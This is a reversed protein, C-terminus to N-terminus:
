FTNKKLNGKQHQNQQCRKRKVAFGVEFGLLFGEIWGDFFGVLFGVFFGVPVIKLLIQLQKQRYITFKITLLFPYTLLFQHIDASFDFFKCIPDFLFPHTCWARLFNISLNFILLQAVNKKQFWSRNLIKNKDM